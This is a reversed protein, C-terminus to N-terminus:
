APVPVPGRLAKEHQMATLRLVVLIALVAAAIDVADAFMMQAASDHIERATEAKRGGLTAVRDALLSVVWLTWWANVLGHPRPRDWPAGPSSANWIDVAIRRPFWLNVVPTFWAGIAWGRAKSHGDPRFVEANVRVRHFWCLYVVVTALLALTQAIGAADYIRDARDAREVARVATVDAIDGTVDYMTFDAWLAFLDTAVVLGLLLATARGLGVPSRLWATPPLTYPPPLPAAPHADAAECQRCLAGDPAAAFRQCRACTM